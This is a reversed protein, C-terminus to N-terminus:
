MYILVRNLGLIIFVGHVELYGIRGLVIWRVIMEGLKFNM